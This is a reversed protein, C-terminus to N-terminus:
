IEVSHWMMSSDGDISYLRSLLDKGKSTVVVQLPIEKRTCTKIIQLIFQWTKNPLLDSNGLVLCSPVEPFKLRQPDDSDIKLPFPLGKITKVIDEPTTKQTCAYAGIRVGYSNHSLHKMIPALAKKTAARSECDIFIAQNARGSTTRAITTNLLRALVDNLAPGVPPVHIPMQLIEESRPTFLTETLAGSKRQGRGM